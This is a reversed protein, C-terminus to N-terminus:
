KNVIVDIIVRLLAATTLAIYMGIHILYIQVSYNWLFFYLM